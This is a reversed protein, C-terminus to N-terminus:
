LVGEEIALKISRAQSRAMYFYREFENIWNYPVRADIVDHCSSCGIGGSCDDPKTAMGGYGYQFHCWVSTAKDSNCVGAINLTCSRGNAFDRLKKNRYPKM